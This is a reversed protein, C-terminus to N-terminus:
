QPMRKVGDDLFPRARFPKTPVEVVELAEINSIPIAALHRTHAFEENEIIGEYLEENPYKAILYVNIECSQDRLQAIIIPNQNDQKLSEFAQALKDKLKTSIGVRDHSYMFGNKVIEDTKQLTRLKKYKDQLDSDPILKAKLGNIREGKDNYSFEHLYQHGNNLEGLVKIVRGFDDYLYFSREELNTAKEKLTESYLQNRFNYFYKRTSIWNESGDSHNVELLKGRENYTYKRVELLSLGWFEFDREEILLKTQPHYISKTKM